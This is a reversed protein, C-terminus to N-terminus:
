PQHEKGGLVLLQGRLGSDFGPRARAFTTESSAKDKLHLGVSGPEDFSHCGAQRAVAATSASIPLQPRSVEILIGLGDECSGSRGQCLAQYGRGHCVGEPLLGLTQSILPCPCGAIATMYLHACPSTSESPSIPCNGGPM